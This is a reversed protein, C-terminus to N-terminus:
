CPHKGPWSRHNPARWWRDSRQHRGRHRSSRRSRYRTLSSPTCCGYEVFGNVYSRPFRVGVREGKGGVRALVVGIVDALPLVAAASVRVVAEGTVAISVAAIVVRVAHAVRFEVALALGEVGALFKRLRWDSLQKQSSQEERSVTARIADDSLELLVGVRLEEDLVALLDRDWAGGEIAHGGRAGDGGLVALRLEAHEAVVVAEVLDATHRGHVLSKALGHNEDHRDPVVHTVKEQQIETKGSLLPGAVSVFSM